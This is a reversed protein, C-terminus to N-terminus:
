TLGGIRDALEDAGAESEKLAVELEEVRAELAQYAAWVRRTLSSPLFWEMDAAYCRREEPTLPTM